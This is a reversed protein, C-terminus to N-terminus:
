TSLSLLLVSVERERTRREKTKMGVLELLEDGLVVVEMLRSSVTESGVEL